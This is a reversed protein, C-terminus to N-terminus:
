RKTCTHAETMSNSSQTSSVQLAINLPGLSPRCINVHDGDLAGWAGMSCFREMAVVYSIVRQKLYPSFSLLVAQAIKYLIELTAHFINSLWAVSKGGFWPIVGEWRVPYALRFLVLCFAQLQDCSCGANGFITEPLLVSACKEIVHPEM